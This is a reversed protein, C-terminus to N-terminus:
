PVRNLLLFRYFARIAALHRDLTSLRYDHDRLRGLHKRLLAKQGDLREWQPADFPDELVGLDAATSLFRRVDRGYAEVTRPSMGREIRLYESFPLLDDRSM